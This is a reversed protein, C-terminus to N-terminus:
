TPPGAQRVRQALQAADILQKNTASPDAVVAEIQAMVTLLPADEGGALPVTADWAVSGSAFNLWAELLGATAKARRDGGFPSLVEYAEQPTLASADESFVGSVYDVIDLYGQLVSPDELMAGNGRYQHKWYGSSATRTEDGVFIKAAGDDASGDDDDTVTVGILTVQPVDVTITATDSAAFPFVGFPSPLPDPAVGDNFYTTSPGFSWTFTLDDSGPDTADADHEQPEGIQGVFADGGPFSVTGTPDITVAPDLNSVIVDVTDVDVGGDDDTVTVAVTYTGNDGYVHDAGLSGSGAGQVVAVPEVPGGDGWDISATHTDLVGPDTFTATVTATGGEDIGDGVATVTPIVNNVTVSADDSDSLGGPDTVTLTLVDVTDDVGSYTPTAVTPDDLHTDPVWLYTLPDGDPDSSGTGDLIVDSGEDVSYPGGADATPPRNIAELASAKILESEEFTLEDFPLPGPSGADPSMAARFKINAWDDFGTLVEPQVFGPARTQDDDGIATTNCTRDPGTTVAGNQVVDDGTPATDLTDDDGDTVCVRDGNLDVVVPNDFPALGSNNWNWDLGLRADGARLTRTPDVWFAVRNGDGIGAAEDLATEDLDPLASTSYDITSNAIFQAPDFGTAGWTDFNTLGITQYRYNMISLYNSKFNVGDGGGHGLGINHGLEHMITGSQDRVTGNQDTWEGLTVMFGKDASCCVGSSSSGDHTHAWVNYFFYPTRDADFNSSRLADLEAIGFAAEDVVATVPLADDVDAIFNIGSAQTPFGAYPCDAVAPFPAANFADVVEQIAAPDPEHSHDPAVFYDMEVAISPRCPDAGLAAMDTTLNGAADRIGFREVGDPIGDNDLDGDGGLSIDFWIRGREGGEFVGSHETDGDGQSFGVNPATDGTWGGTLLDVSLVLDLDNDIPDLDIDDDPAALGSDADLVQITVTTTPAADRDVAETFTWYPSIKANNEIASGRNDQFPNSGIRVRGYYDGDGQLPAPDPDDLADFQMITVTVNVLDVADATSPSVTAGVFAAVLATVVALVIKTPM